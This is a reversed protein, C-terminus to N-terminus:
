AHKRGRWWKLIEQGAEEVTLVDTRVDYGLSKLREMLIGVLPVGLGLSQLEEVRSFVQRPPGDM